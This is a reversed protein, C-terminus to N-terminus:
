RRSGDGVLQVLRSGPRSTSESRQRASFPDVQQSVQDSNMNDGNQTILVRVFDVVSRWESVQAQIGLPGDFEAIAEISGRSQAQRGSHDEPVGCDRCQAGVQHLLEFRRGSCM